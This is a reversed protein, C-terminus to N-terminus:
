KSNEVKNSKFKSKISDGIKKFNVLKKDGKRVDEMYNIAKTFNSKPEAKGQKYIITLPELTSQENVTAMEKTSAIVVEQSNDDALPLPEQIIPALQHELVKNDTIVINQQPTDDIIVAAPPTPKEIQVKQNLVLEQAAPVHIYVPVLIIEQPVDVIDIQNQSHAYNVTPDINSESFMYWSSVIALVASAAISLWTWVPKHSKNELGSEIVEWAGASPQNQYDELKDSFLKDLKHKKM